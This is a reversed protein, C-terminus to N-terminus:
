ILLAAASISSPKAIFPLNAKFWPEAM